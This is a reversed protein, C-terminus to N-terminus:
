FVLGGLDIGSFQLCQLCSDVLDLLVVSFSRDHFEAVLRLSVDLDDRRATYGQVMGEPDPAVRASADDLDVSGFGATLSGERDVGDGLRLFHAAYGSHNVCLM